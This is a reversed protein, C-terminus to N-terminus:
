GLLVDLQMMVVFGVMLGATAQTAVGKRHTEPIIENSIVFLMAGAAFTLGLPLIPTALAVTGAGILAGIPEVFGTAAAILLAQVRTYGVGLLAVAVALGEPMNQLGIGGALSTGDFADGGGFGVGVALGEPLNHLTIAIIFLWLRRLQTQDASERGTVFHEHPAFRHILAIAGAGALIGTAAAVAAWTESGYITTGHDLGPIILSFATAALMVGAAFGLLVNQTSARVVSGFLVPLAGVATMGGAILSALTGLLVPSMGATLAQLTEM